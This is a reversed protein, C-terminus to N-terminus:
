AWQPFAAMTVQLRVLIPICSNLGRTPLSLRPSATDPVTQAAAFYRRREQGTMNLPYKHNHKEQWGCCTRNPRIKCRRDSRKGFFKTACVIARNFGPWKLVFVPPCAKTIRGEVLQDLNRIALVQRQLACPRPHQLCTRRQSYGDAYAIRLHLLSHPRDDVISGACRRRQRTWICRRM